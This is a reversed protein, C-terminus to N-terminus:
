AEQLQKFAEVIKPMTDMSVDQHTVLRVVGKGFANALIGKEKLKEVFIKDNEYIAPAKVMLINTEPMGSPLDYGIGQLNKAIEKAFHHDEALREVRHDMAYIGAAALFGAQRMGGGMMKRWHRASEIFDKTGVLLSGVPAGLGKSICFMLSDVTSAIEAVSNGSAIAANFIRAGDMHSVLGKNKTWEQVEKLTELPYVTGGARNHTNEVWVLRSTPYHLDDGRWYEDLKAATLFGRDAIMTRIQVGAMVAAGGCELYFVHSNEECLLENRLQCHALVALQNGMTGTPVFLAAEKGCLEASKAELHAVTPDEGYVDDGVEAVAMVKRMEDIPKTLTDSRLDVFM